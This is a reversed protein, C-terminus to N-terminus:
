RAACCSVSLSRNILFSSKPWASRVPPRITRVNDGEDKAKMIFGATRVHPIVTYVAAVLAMRKRDKKKGQSLRSNLKKNKQAAKKTCERLGDPRMVIGKGDTTIVLVDNTEEPKAFCSQQYYPEFDQAVDQVVNLTQRKAISCATTDRITEVVNDYSGKIAEKAVRDRV